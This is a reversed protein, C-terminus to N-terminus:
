LSGEPYVRTPEDTLGVGGLQRAEIAAAVAPEMQKKLVVYASDTKMKDEYDRAEDGTIAALQQATAARDVVYHTDVYLTKLERNLVLPSAQGRNHIFIEARTPNVQYKRSQEQNALVTYYNHRLVQLYALRGIAVLGILVLGLGLLSVRQSFSTNNM